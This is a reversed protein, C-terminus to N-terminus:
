VPVSPMMIVRRSNLAVAQILSRPRYSLLYYTYQTPSRIFNDAM